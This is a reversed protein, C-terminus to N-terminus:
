LKISLQIQGGLGLEVIRQLTSIRVEKVNNELRSIYSKTTGCKTALQQQTMGKELRAEQILAGLKFVEYGAELKERKSTGRKGYNKDKFETLTKIFIITRVKNKNDM